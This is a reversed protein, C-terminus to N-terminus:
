GLRARRELELLILVCAHELDLQDDQPRWDKTMFPWNIPPNKEYKRRLEPSTAVAVYCSAARLLIGDPFNKLNDTDFAQLRVEHCVKEMSVYNRRAAEPPLGERWEEESGAPRHRASADSPRVQVEWGSGLQTVDQWWDESM